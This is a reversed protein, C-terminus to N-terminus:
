DNQPLIAQVGIEHDFMYNSFEDVGPGSIPSLKGLRIANGIDQRTKGTLNALEQTSVAFGRLAKIRELDGRKAYRGGLGDDVLVLRKPKLWDIELRRKAIGLWKTVHELGVLEKNDQYAELYATVTERSFFRKNGLAGGHELPKLFGGKVLRAVKQVSINGLLKAVDESDMYRTEAEARLSREGKKPRGARTRYITNRKIESMDLQDIQRRPFVYILGSDIGPGSVPTAGANMLREALNTVNFGHKTAIERALVYQKRFHILELKTIYRQPTRHNIKRRQFQILGNAMLQYVASKYLNLKRTLDGVTLLNDRDPDNIGIFRLLSAKDLYIGLLGLEKDFGVVNIIGDLTAQIIQSFKKTSSNKHTKLYESVAVSGRRDENSLLVNREDIKALMQNLTMADILIDRYGDIQPGRFAKIVEASLLLKANHPSIGLIHAAEKLTVLQDLTNKLGIVDKFFYCGDEQPDPLHHKALSAFSPATVDLLGITSKSGILGLTEPKRPPDLPSIARAEDSAIFDHFKDMITNYVAPQEDKYPFRDLTMSVRHMLASTSFFPFKAREVKIVDRLFIEFSLPWQSFPAFATAVDNRREEVPCDRIGLTAGSWPRKKTLMYGIHLLAGLSAMDRVLPHDTITGTEICEAVMRSVLLKEEDASVPKVATLDADCRCKSVSPRAWNIYEGCATCLSTLEIGHAHCATYPALDWLQRHYESETLCKVCVAPKRFSLLNSPVQALGVRLRLESDTSVPQYSLGELSESTKDVIAALPKLNAQGKAIPPIRSLWSNSNALGTLGLIVSPSDYANAETLRVLYGPLSEDSMPAPRILLKRRATQTM